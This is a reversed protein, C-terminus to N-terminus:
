HFMRRRRHQVNLSIYHSINKDRVRYNTVCTVAYIANANAVFQFDLDKLYTFKLIICETFIYM